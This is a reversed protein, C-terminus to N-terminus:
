AGALPMTAESALSETPSVTPEPLSEPEAAVLEVEPVEPAVPEAADVPLVLEELEANASIMLSLVIVIVTV